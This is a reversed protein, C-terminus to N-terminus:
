KTGKQKEAWIQKFSKKQMKPLKRRKGWSGAFLKEIMFNKIGSGVMDMMWRRQMAVRWGWMGINEVAPSLKSQVAYNRNELLQYHLNINVPCVETCKGCLSSAYSLHKYDRLPKLHPTIVAGIPGSYVSGYTHGGVNRYVPCANLCSGCRICSLARRQPIRSLLNTRGNDLLIVYMYKPGNEEGERAPGNIISNYATLNQGTGFTALLPWFLHLDELNEIVKEIGAIVIQIQPMSSSLVGNGENETLAVSGTSSILFNAGTIGADAKEFKKRLTKRVFKTIEVPTSEKPLGFKEHFIQAIDIASKHMVPTVIHYPKDGSIQVIYEGLDTEVCEISNKSLFHDLELEETVMSKSKVVTQADFHKLIKLISKNAEDSNSAWIVEGGNRSFNQEFTKLLKELNEVSKYKKLSAQRRALPLNAYQQKGRKVAADYRGMNFAITKRHQMDFSKSASKKQFLNATGVVMDNFIQITFFIVVPM